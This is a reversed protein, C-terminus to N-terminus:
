TLMESREPIWSVCFPEEGVSVTTDVMSSIRVDAVVYVVDTEIGDNRGNEEKPWNEVSEVRVVDVRGSVDVEGLPM